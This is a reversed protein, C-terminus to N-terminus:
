SRHSQNDFSNSWWTQARIPQQLYKTLEPSLVTVTNVCYVLIVIEMICVNCTGRYLIRFLITCIETRFPANHSISSCTSKHNLDIPEDHISSHISFILSIVVDRWGNKLIYYLLRLTTLFIQYGLFRMSFWICTFRPHPSFLAFECIGCNVQGMDWLVGNLVSINKNQITCQPRHSPSALNALNAQEHEM